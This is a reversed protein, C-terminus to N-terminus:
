CMWVASAVAKSPSCRTWTGPGEMDPRRSQAFHLDIGDLLVRFQDFGALKAEQERWDFGDAM